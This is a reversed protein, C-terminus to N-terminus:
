LNVKRAREIRMARDAALKWSSVKDDSGMVDIAMEAAGLGTSPPLM